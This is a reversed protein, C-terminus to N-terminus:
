SRSPKYGIFGYFAIYVYCILPLLFSLQLNHTVDAFAGQLPPIIAGGVIAMVLLSSGQSTHIGLNKIALDFITPFMISNFLGISIVAWMAVSGQGFIAVALLAVTISAFLGLSRSPNSAGLIFAFINFAMLGLVIMAIAPDYLTYVLGFAVLGIVAMIGYKTVASQYRALAVAGFFRGVMAGGWFFSLYYTAQAENYGAINPLELFGIISSGISVEGGVYAFICIIGLVLHRYKLAGADSVITGESGVKPLPSIKIIGAILLLMVALAVYPVRVSDAGSSANAGAFILYGGIIPAVTTGLANLAQTLNMRSSSSEPPGLISVYPNATIQLLTIGSALVFLALLFFGYSELSAAPLFLVCGVAAILLGLIIGNKYGIRMIPDGKTVSLIFYILSVIFYAGFFATQILMAQWHQLDFVQKMKPILIDNLCTILGWMFFLLTVTILPGRYNAGASSVDSRAASTSSVPVGAM